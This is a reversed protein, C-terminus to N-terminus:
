GGPKARSPVFSPSQRARRERPRRRKKVAERRPSTVVQQRHKRRDREQHAPQQRGGRFDSGPPGDGAVGPVDGDGNPREQRIPGRARPDYEARGRRCAGGSGAPPHEGGPPDDRDGREDRPPASSPSTGTVADDDGEAERVGEKDGKRRPRIRVRFDNVLSTRFPRAFLRVAEGQVVCPRPM